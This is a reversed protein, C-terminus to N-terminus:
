ALLFFFFYRSGINLKAKPINIDGAWAFREPM